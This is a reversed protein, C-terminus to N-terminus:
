QTVLSAFGVVVAAAGGLMLVGCLAGGLAVVTMVVTRRFSVRVPMTNFSHIAGSFGLVGVIIAALGGGIYEILM